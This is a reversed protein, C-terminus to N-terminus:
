KGVQRSRLNPNTLDGKDVDIWRTGTVKIGLRKAYKRTIKRWVGKQRIYELETKRAKIADKPNIEEGSIDAWARGEFEGYTEEEHEDRTNNKRDPHTITSLRGRDGGEVSGVTDEPGVTLLSKIKHVRSRKDKWM